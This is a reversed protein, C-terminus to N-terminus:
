AFFWKRRVATRPNEGLSRLELGKRQLQRRVSVPVMVNAETFRVWKLNNRNNRVYRNRYMNGNDRWEGSPLSQEQTEKGGTARLGIFKLIM